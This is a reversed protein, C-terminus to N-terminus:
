ANAASKDALGIRRRLEPFRADRGLSDYVPMVDLYCLLADHATAAQNLWEFAQDHAGMGIYVLARAIPSVYREGSQADLRELIERAREPMGAVGYGYGLLGMVLPNGGSQECMTELSRVGEEIRSTQLLIMGLGVRMEFYTADLELTRQAQQIAMDYERRYYHVLALATNINMALPDLQQARRMEKLADDVRGMQTLYVAHAYRAHADGPSLEVARRFHKGAETWDWDCFIGVYGLSVQAHALQPDLQVARLANKRAMPWVQDPPMVSWFGIAAYYEGLGAWAPAYEPDAAIAAQYHEVAKRLGDETQRNWHYRGKLYQSYAELNEPRRSGAAVAPLEGTLKGRLSEVISQSIEDQIAFIDELHRDFRQAWVQYGDAVNVLQATVRLRDGARRVSGELVMNVGLTEGIQRVDAAKGKFQFASTRSVVHLGPVQVLAIILEEALGDSFYENEPDHSLDAFPLVAISALSRVGSPTRLHVANHGTTDIVETATTESPLAKTASVARLDAALEFATRYRREPDKALAFSIVHDLDQPLGPRLESARAPRDHLISYVVAHDQGPFPRQGTLMEYLVVGLAWIDTRADCPGSRLQEPSMYAPTGVAFGPQTNRESEGLIAIGFDLLKVAGKALMVNAPKVDRHVIGHQHAASLGGAIEVAIDVAEKAALAGRAIRSALTEGEYYAMVIYLGGDDTDEIGYITCINPHDLASAARAERVFRQRMTDNDSIGSNFFKLAVFRDLRLDRAKYVVGMGGHGLKEEIRYRSVVEGAVMKKGTDRM